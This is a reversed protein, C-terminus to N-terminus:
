PTLSLGIRGLHEFVVEARDGAGVTPNDIMSGTIVVEGARLMHGHKPLENALWLLADWPTTGMIQRGAGSSMIEGNVEARAMEKALDLVDVPARTDGVIVGANSLADAIMHNTSPAADAENMARMRVSILEIAGTVEKVSARLTEMTVEPGPIDSGIIFGIEAEVQTEGGVFRAPDITSGPEFRDSALMYAFSPDPTPNAPTVRSGGMKWGILADGAALQQDLAALQIAYAQTRDLDPMGKVLADTAAAARENELLVRAASAPPTDPALM